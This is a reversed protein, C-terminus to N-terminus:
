FQKNELQIIWHNIGEQRADGICSAYPTRFGQNNRDFFKLSLNQWM